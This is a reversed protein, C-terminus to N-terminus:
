LATASKLELDLDWDLDSEIFHSEPPSVNTFKTVMQPNNTPISVPPNLVATANAARINAAPNAKKAYRLVVSGFDCVSAKSGSLDLVDFYRLRGIQIKAPKKMM